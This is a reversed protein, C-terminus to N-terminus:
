SSPLSARIASWDYPLPRYPQAGQRAIAQRLAQMREESAPHSALLTIGPGERKALKAFFAVMGGPSIGARQLAELGKLDAERELDRGYKLTGLRHAMDTWIGGTLDGMALSLVARWGLDHILNKLAHRQEVHQVEHALVGAVEEASDAARLLGTYVVVYGGPMAFANVEPSDAVFWHYKYASGRTLRGGLERVLQPAPGQEVLRLSARMQDFAMEGLRMEDQVSVHGAVWGAIRESNLWFLGLLLFPSLIVALWVWILLHFRRSRRRILRLGHDLQKALMPSALSRMMRMDEEGKLVASLVGEDTTWTFMWQRGNYGGPKLEVRDALVTLWVGPGNFELVDGKLSMRARTGSPSMGPGFLLVKFEYFAATDTREQGGLM